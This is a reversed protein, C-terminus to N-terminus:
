SRSMCLRDSIYLYVKLYGDNTHGIVRSTLVICCTGVVDKVRGVKLVIFGEDLHSSWLQQLEFFGTWGM